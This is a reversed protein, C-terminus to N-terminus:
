GEVVLKFGTEQLLKENLVDVETQDVKDALKVTLEARGVHIGPGNVAVWGKGRLLRNAMQLILYQNPHPHISLNYGTEQALERIQEIYREGVQPSIFSLVIQGQRLSTKTLSSGRLRSRILGYAANIEMREGFGDVSTVGDAEGPEVAKNTIILDFGTIARYQQRLERSQADSINLLEVHVQAKNLYFSPGKQIASDAPLLEEVAIGLAQQSVAPKIYLNWGTREALQELQKGFRGPVTSPFDFTLILRKRHIDMGVKRLKAEPPMLQRALDRAQNQELPGHDLARHPLLGEPELTAGDEALVVVIATLALQSDMSPPLVDPLLSEPLVPKGAQVLQQRRSFPLLQGKCSRVQGMLDSLNGRIGKKDNAKKWDGIVWLLADAPHATGRQHHVIATFSDITASKVVALRVQGNRNRMVILKGVIDPNALMIARCRLSRKVQAESKVSYTKKSRWSPTFYVNKDSELVAQMEAIRDTAGWWIQTLERLSFFDGAREKLSEWLRPLDIAGTQSGSKLKGVGWPRAQYNLVKSQGIRPTSVSKGRQRLATALSHRAGPDGHVLMIDDARLAEAFSLLEMEDAHASLSYTGIECRVKVTVNDLKLTPTEGAQREKMMRQLFRGPAEEDQYGTMLIANRANPAFHRAYVVSAGGTLMGSSAVVVLPRNSSAIEQRHQNSRIPRINGRFFLHEEGAMRLCQRPLIDSFTQYADCVTRVMGDVYVPVSFRDRYALIIQIVEQARGLAFAPILVKGGRETVRRLTQMLRKEESVRNAHLRGGYTSELILADAKVPPVVVSKVTRQESKSIDGSVVLTGERSEFVLLAAGAIHGATYYTIQLGEALKLPQNFEITQFADMLRQVSIEDFLPLEGEQEQRSRMIKQADLQLVRTLVQTAQTAIVPAHPYQELILPLAGTHDTHAHTVLIFDPGGLASIPQLDPLQSNQIGRNSRPSIRIGADVLILKDAIQILCCSAGVEDAGGLFTIKM